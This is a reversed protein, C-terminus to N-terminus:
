SIAVIRDFVVRGHTRGVPGERVDGASQIRGKRAGRVVLGFCALWMIAKSGAIEVGAETGGALPADIYM